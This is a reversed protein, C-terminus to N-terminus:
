LSENALLSYLVDVQCLLYAYTTYLYLMPYAYKQQWRVEKRIHYSPGVRIHAVLNGPGEMWAEKVHGVAMMLDYVASVQPSVAM